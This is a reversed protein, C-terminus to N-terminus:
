IFVKIQTHSKFNKTNMINKFGNIMVLGEDYIQEYVFRIDDRTSLHISDLGFKWLTIGNTFIIQKGKIVVMKKSTNIGPFM